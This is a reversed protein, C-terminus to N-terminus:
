KLGAVFRELRAYLMPWNTGFVSTFDEIREAETYDIFPPRSATLALYKSYKQPQTEVLYFTLAWALGYASRPRIRFMRDSSIVEPLIKSDTNSGALARFAALRTRNVRGAQTAHHRSDYVGPAEFMTALGEAVWVPPPTYRSHVGVNFATQHTAEHIITSANEQWRASASQGGVDYLVIRNSAVGYYGAVSASASMGQRASYRAFDRRDKCVIGILPFPPTKPRFGRISFYRVFSRYLDEFRQAWRDRQGRPHAVLYHSTGSVEYEKGLERLLRARLESPLYSRFRNPMKRFDVAESPHFDWLRGDRGLLYVVSENWSIPKGELKEGRLTLELMWDAGQGARAGASWLVVTLALLAITRM